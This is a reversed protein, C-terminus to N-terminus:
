PNKAETIEKCISTQNIAIEKASNLSQTTWYQCQKCYYWVLGFERMGWEKPKAITTDCTPCKIAPFEALKM